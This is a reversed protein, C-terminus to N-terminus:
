RLKEVRAWDRRIKTERRQIEDGVLSKSVLLNTQRTQVRSKILSHQKNEYKAMSKKQQIKPEVLM